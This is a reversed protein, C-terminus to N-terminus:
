RINSITDWGTYAVRVKGSVEIRIPVMPVPLAAPNVPKAYLGVTDSGVYNAILRTKRDPDAYIGAGARVACVMLPIHRTADLEGELSTDPLPITKAATPVVAWKGTDYYAAQLLAYPYFRKGRTPDLRNTVTSFNPDAGLAGLVGNRNVEARFLIAHSGRFPHGAVSLPVKSMDLGLIVPWRGTRLRNRLQPISLRMYDAPVGRKRLMDRQQTASTPGAAPAVLRRTDYIGYKRDKYFEVAMTVCTPGCNDPATGPDPLPLRSDRDWQMRLPTELARTYM